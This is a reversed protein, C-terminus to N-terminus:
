RLLRWFLFGFGLLAFAVVGQLIWSPMFVFLLGNATAFMIFIFTIINANGTRFYFIGMLAVILLAYFGVTGLVDTYPGLIAGIIDGRAWRWAEIESNKPTKLDIGTICSFTSYTKSDFLFSAQTNGGSHSTALFMNLYWTSLNIQKTILHPSIFTGVLDWGSSNSQMMVNIKLAQYGLIISTQPINFTTTYEGNTDTSVPIVTIGSVGSTLETSHTSDTYLYVQIGISITDNGTYVHSITGITNTYDTDFGFGSVSSTNYTDSRFYYRTSSSGIIPPPTPVFLISTASITHNAVINTFTYSGLAGQDAADVYVHDILYGGNAVITYTPNDNSLYATTGTPLVNSNADSSATVYYYQAYLTAIVGANAEPTPTQCTGMYSDEVTVTKYIFASACSGPHETGDVFTWNNAPSQPTMYWGYQSLEGVVLENPDRTQPTTGTEPPVVGHVASATRDLYGVNKVGKYETVHAVNSGGINYTITIHPSAGGTVNTGVWLAADINAFSLAHIVYEWSVGAESISAVTVGSAGQSSSGCVLIDGITPATDLEVIVTTGTSDNTFPGQIVSPGVPLVTTGWLTYTLPSIGSMAEDMWPTGGAATSYLLGFTPDAVNNAAPSVFSADYPTNCEIAVFYTGAVLSYSASFTFDIQTFDADSLSALNITDSTALASGTINADTNPTGMSAFIEAKVTGTSGVGKALYISYVLNTHIGTVTVQEAIATVNITDTPYVGQISYDGIALTSDDQNSMSVAGVYPPTFTKTDAKAVQVFISVASVVFLGILLFAFLKNTRLSYAGKSSSRSPDRAM